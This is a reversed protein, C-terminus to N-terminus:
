RREPISTNSNIEADEGNQGVRCYTCDQLCWGGECSLSWECAGKSVRVTRSSDYPCKEIIVLSV